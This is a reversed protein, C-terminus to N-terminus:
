KMVDVLTVKGDKKQLLILEGELSLGAYKFAKSRDASLVLDTTGNRRSIAVGLVGDPMDDLRSTKVPGSRQPFSMTSVFNVDSGSQRLILVDKPRGELDVHGQATIMEAPVNPFFNVVMPQRDEGGVYTINMPKADSTTRRVRTMHQYGYSGSVPGNELDGLKPVSSDIEGDVHLAFDYKHVDDSLCRYFDVVVSDVLATTRDLVVGDYAIECKARFSKLREGAHFAWPQGHASKGRTESPWRNDVDGQPYQSVEDVTVTNHAITQRDWNMFSDHGYHHYRVEPAFQHGHASLNLSLQAPHTHASGWEGYNMLVGVSDPETSQRLITLGGNPLLTCFNKHQGTVGVQTDKSLDYEGTPLDHAMWLLVTPDHLRRHLLAVKPDKPLSAEWEATRRKMEEKEIYGGGVWPREMDYARNLIWAYKPDRYARWAAEYCRHREFHDNYSNGIRVFSGNSFPQYFVSDFMMKPTKTGTAGFRRAVDAGADLAHGPVELNWLDVGSHRAADMLKAYSDLTFLHYHLSREYFVGDALISWGVHRVFGDRVLVGDENRYGHLAEDLLDRDNICFGVLGVGGIAKARWNSRYAHNCIRMAEASLKLVKQEIDIKDQDSLVGSNYILDYASCADEAWRSEALTNDTARGKLYAIDYTPMLKVYAKLIKAVAEAYKTDDSLMYALAFEHCEQANAKNGSRDEQPLSPSDVKEDMRALFQETWAKLDKDREVWAKLEKIEQDNIFLRPHDPLQAPVEVRVEQADITPAFGATLTALTVTLILCCRSFTRASHTM